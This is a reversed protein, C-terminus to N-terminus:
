YYTTNSAVVALEIGYFLRFTRADQHHPGDRSPSPVTDARPIASNTTSSATSWHDVGLGWPVGGADAVAVCEKDNTGNDVFGPV